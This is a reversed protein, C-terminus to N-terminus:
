IEFLFFFHILLVSHAAGIRKDSSELIKDEFKLNLFGLFMGSFLPPTPQHMPPDDIQM